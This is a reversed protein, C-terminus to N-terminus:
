DVKKVELLDILMSSPAIGGSMMEIALRDGPQCQLVQEAQKFTWITDTVSIWIRKSDNGVRYLSVGGGIALNKGWCQLVVTGGLPPGSFQFLAHPVICGGTVRVSQKGGNPPADAVFAMGGYRVWGVTDSQSEFSNFFVDSRLDPETPDTCAIFLVILSYFLLASSFKM